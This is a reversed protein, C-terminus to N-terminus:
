RDSILESEQEVWDLEDRAIFGNELYIVQRVGKFHADDEIRMVVFLEGCSDWKRIQGPKVDM